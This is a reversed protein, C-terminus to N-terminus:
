VAGRWRAPRMERPRVEFGRGAGQGGRPITIRVVTGKSVSSELAVNGGLQAARRRMDSLGLGHSDDAGSGPAFLVMEEADFGRGNDSVSVMLQKDTVDVRVKITSAHGHRIGNYVGERVMMYIHRQAEMSILHDPGDLHLECGVDFFRRVLSAYERLEDFLRRRGSPGCEQRSLQSWSEVLYNLQRQLAQSAVMATELKRADVLGTQRFRGVVDEIQMRTAAADQSLGDHMEALLEARGERVIRAQVNAEQLTLAVAQALARCSERYQATFSHYRQHIVILAGTMQGPADEGTDEEAELPLVTLSGATERLRSASQGLPRIMLLGRKVERMANLNGIYRPRGTTLVGRALEVLGRPASEWAPHEDDFLYLGPSTCAIPTGIEDMSPDYPLLIAADAELTSMVMAVVEDLLTQYGQRPLLRRTISSAIAHLVRVRDLNEANALAVALQVAIGQLLEEDDPSFALPDDSQIDLVGLLRDAIVLPMAIEARTQPFAKACPRFLRRPDTYVDDVIVPERHEAVWRTIGIPDGEQDPPEVVYSGIVLERGGKSSAGVVALRVPADPEAPLPQLISINRFGLGKSIIEAAQNCFEQTTTHPIAALQEILTVAENLATRREALYRLLIGPLLCILVLWLSQLAVLRLTLLSLVAGTMAHVTVDCFLALAGVLVTAIMTVNRAIALIPPVFLLWTTEDLGVAVVNSSQSRLSATFVAAVGILFIAVAIHIGSPIPTKDIERLKMVTFRAVFYAFYIAPWLINPPHQRLTPAVLILVVAVTISSVIEEYYRILM